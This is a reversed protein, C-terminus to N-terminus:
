RFREIQKSPPEMRGLKEWFEELVNEYLGLCCHQLAKPPNCFPCHAAEKTRSYTRQKEIRKRQSTPRKESTPSTSHSVSIVKPLFLSGSPRRRSSSGVSRLWLRQFDGGGGRGLATSASEPAISPPASSRLMGLSFDVLLGLYSGTKRDLSRAVLIDVPFFLAHEAYGGDDHM